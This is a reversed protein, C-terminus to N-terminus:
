DRIINKDKYFKFCCRITIGNFFEWNREIFRYLKKIINVREVDLELRRNGWGKFFVPGPKTMEFAMKKVLADMTLKSLDFENEMINGRGKHNKLIPLFSENIKVMKYSKSSGYFMFLSLIGTIVAIIGYWSDIFFQTTITWGNLVFDILSGIIVFIAIIVIVWVM